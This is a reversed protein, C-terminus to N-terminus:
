VGLGRVNKSANRELDDSGASRYLEAVFRSTGHPECVTCVDSQPQLSAVSLLLNLSGVVGSMLRSRFLVRELLEFRDKMRM